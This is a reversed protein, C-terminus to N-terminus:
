LPPAVLSLLLHQVMHASFLYRDGITDLPSVLALFIIDVGLLFACARVLPVEPGLQYRERIPGIALLYGAIIALTGIILSPAWDWNTYWLIANNMGQDRRAKM